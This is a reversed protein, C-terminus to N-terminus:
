FHKTALLVPNPVSYQVCCVNKEAVPVTEAFSVVAMVAEGMQLMFAGCTMFAGGM